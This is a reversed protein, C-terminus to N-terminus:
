VALKSLKDGSHPRQLISYLIPHNASLSCTLPDKTVKAKSNNPRQDSKQMQGMLSSNAGKLAARFLPIGAVLAITLGRVNAQPQAASLSAIAAPILGARPWAVDSGCSSSFLVIKKTKKEEREASLLFRCTIKRHYGISLFLLPLHM